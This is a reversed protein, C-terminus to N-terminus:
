LRTIRPGSMVVFFAIVIRKEFLGITKTALWIYIYIMYMLIIMINLYVCEIWLRM